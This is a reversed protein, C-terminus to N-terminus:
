RKKNKKHFQNAGGLPNSKKKKGPNVGRSAALRRAKLKRAIKGPNKTTLEPLEEGMDADMKAPASGDDAEEPQPHDPRPANLVAEIAEQKKKEAEVQWPAQSINNRKLTRFVRKVKSRVSKAM